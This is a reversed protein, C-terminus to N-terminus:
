TTTCICRVVYTCQFGFVPQDNIVFPDVHGFLAVILATFDVRSLICGKVLALGRFTQTYVVHLRKHILPTCRLHHTTVIRSGFPTNLYTITTPSAVFWGSREAM